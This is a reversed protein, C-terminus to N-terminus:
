ELLIDWKKNKQKNSSYGQTQVIKEIQEIREKEWLQKERRITRKAKRLKLAFANNNETNPNILMLSRAKDREEIARQYKDNFWKHKKIRKNKELYEVATTKILGEVKKWCTEIHEAEVGDKLKNKLDNKYQFLIESNKINDTDIKEEIKV